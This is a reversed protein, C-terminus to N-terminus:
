APTVKEGTEAPHVPLDKNKRMKGTDSRAQNQPTYQCIRTKERKALTVEQRIRRPASAIERKKANQWHREKDTEGPHVPLKENKRM